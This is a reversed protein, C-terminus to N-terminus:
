HKRSLAVLSERLPSEIDELLFSHSLVKLEEREAKFIANADTIQQSSEKLHSQMLTFDDSTTEDELILTILGRTGSMNLIYWSFSSIWSADLTELEVGSQTMTKFSLTLPFPVKTTLFGYFFYNVWNYLIIQTIMLQMNNKLSTALKEPDM